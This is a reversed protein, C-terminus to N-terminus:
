ARAIAVRQQQGGSLLDAGADAFDGLGVRDLCDLAIEVDAAPFRRLAVRWLPVGALRGVLVNDVASHRRVLNFQQFIVGMERRVARLEAGSLAGLERGGICVRGGDPDVLGTVSRFLTTKGAGSPGIVAVVEGADVEFSVGDLVRREGYHHVLGAVSLVPTPRM